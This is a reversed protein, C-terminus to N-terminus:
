YFLFITLFVEIFYLFMFVQEDTLTYQYQISKNQIIQKGAKTLHNQM